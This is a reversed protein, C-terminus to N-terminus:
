LLGEVAEAKDGFLAAAQDYAQPPVIVKSAFESIRKGQFADIVHAEEIRRFSGKDDVIERTWFQNDFELLFKKECDNARRVNPTGDAVFGPIIRWERQRYYSLPSDHIADDTPYFLNQAAHIAGRMLEFPATKYNLYNLIGRM